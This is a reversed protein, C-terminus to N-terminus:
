FLRPASQLLTLATSASSFANFNSNIESRVLFLRLLEEQMEPDSFDAPSDTGFVSQSREKFNSLQLDIDLTGFSSSFGLATEFVSRIPPSGMISFWQGDTTTSQELIDFLGPKLNLAQRMSDDQEGVALEFRRDEFKTLIEDAFSPLSTYGSGGLDGFGFAASLSEYRPDSLKVALADTNITGEELVKRIFYKNNIDDDLGFAGLAVDLLRRDAVLEEASNIKSINERFYDEARSIPASEVFATKQSTLTRTLFAWGSYGSTPIIPQFTM